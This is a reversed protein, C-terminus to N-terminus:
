WFIWFIPICYFGTYSGEVTLFWCASIGENMIILDLVIAGLATSVRMYSGEVTLFRCASIGENMIILDLVIAGLATSVRM